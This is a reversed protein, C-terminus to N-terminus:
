NNLSDVLAKHKLQEKTHEVDKIKGDIADLYQMIDFSYVGGIETVLGYVKALRSSGRQNDELTATWGCRLFITTGKKLDNTRTM